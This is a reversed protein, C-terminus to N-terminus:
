ITPSFIHFITNSICFYKNFYLKDQAIEGAYLKSLFKNGYTVLKLEVQDNYIMGNVPQKENILVMPKTMVMLMYREQRYRVDNEDESNGFYLHNGVLDHVVFEYYGADYRNVTFVQDAGDGHLTKVM